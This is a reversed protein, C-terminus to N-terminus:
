TDKELLVDGVLDGIKCYAVNATLAGANSCNVVDVKQYTNGIIGGISPSMIYDIIKAEDYTLGGITPEDEGEKVPEPEELDKFFDELNVDDPYNITISGANSCSEVTISEEEHNVSGVIGGLLGITEGSLSGTNTCNSIVISDQERGMSAILGVSGVIGGLIGHSEMAVTNKLGELVVKCAEESGSYPSIRVFGVCGGKTLTTEVGLVEGLNESNRCIVEGSDIVLDGVLGGSNGDSFVNGSNRCDEIRLQANEASIIGAIGGAAQQGSVDSVTGNNVCGSLYMICDERYENSASPTFSAFRGVIGGAFGNCSVNGKNSCNVVQSETNCVAINGIIGGAAGGSTIEDQISVTGFNECNRIANEPRTKGIHDSYYGVIGGCYQQGSISGSNVCGETSSGNQSGVIGGLDTVLSNSMMQGSYTCGKITSFYGNKGVIGGVGGVIGDGEVLWYADSTCQFIEAESCRGAISGASSTIGVVHFYSDVLSVNKVTGESVEGFLGLYMNPGWSGENKETGDSYLYLGSITYGQGDYTGSFTAYNRGDGIAEWNYKPPIESWSKLDTSDNIVIDQTQVYHAEAYKMGNESEEGSNCLVALRRLQDATAIQFPTEDTGNGGAFDASPKIQTAFFSLDSPIDEFVMKDSEAINKSTCGTLVIIFLSLSLLLYSHIYRNWLSM